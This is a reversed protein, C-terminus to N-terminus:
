RALVHVSTAATEAQATDTTSRQTVVLSRLNNALVALAAVSKRLRPQMAPNSARRFESRVRETRYSHEANVYDINM